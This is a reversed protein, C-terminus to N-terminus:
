CQRNPMFVTVLVISLHVSGPTVSGVPEVNEGSAYAEESHNLLSLQLPTSALALSNVLHTFRVAVM